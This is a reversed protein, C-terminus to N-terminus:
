GSLARRVLEETSATAGLAGSAKVVAKEADAFKYGLTVLAKVADTVKSGSVAGAHAGAGAGAGISSSAGHAASSLSPGLKDKLEVVLREATKKGIGHCKSLLGVDGDLIAARLVPISLRSLITLAVKPGVGSVHEVLLKFFDREENTAFGYLAQSDERYVAVTSLQVEAGPQPIREATTVPVHVEYGVGHVAIM